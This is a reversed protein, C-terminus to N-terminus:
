ATVKVNEPVIVSVPMTRTRGEEDAHRYTMTLAVINKQFLGRRAHSFVPDSADEPLCYFTYERRGPESCRDSTERAKVTKGDLEEGVLSFNTLSPKAKDEYIHAVLESVSEAFRVGEPHLADFRVIELPDNSQNIVDFSLRLVAKSSAGGYNEWEARSYCKPLRRDSFLKMVSERVVPAVFKLLFIAAHSLAHSLM